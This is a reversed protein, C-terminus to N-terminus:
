LFIGGALSTVFMFLWAFGSVASAEGNGRGSTRGRVGGWGRAEPSELKVSLQGSELKTLVRELAHPLALWARGTDLLQMFLHQVVRAVSEIDLGLFKSAYPNAAEIFNFEPALGTLVGTLTGLARGSSAFQAPIHLAQGYLLQKVDQLLEAMVLESVQGLTINSYREIMQSM